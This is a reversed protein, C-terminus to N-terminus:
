ITKQVVRLKASRSRQNIQLEQTSAMIPKKTLVKVREKKEEAKFFHKVIKDELSHFSIVALKGGKELVDIAQPLAIQLNELENNVTIRLAMFTRTAPSIRGREYNMPVAKKIIEVLELTTKIQRVRRRLVINEAIRGAFKEQGFEKFIRELEPKSWYNVIKDATLGKKGALSMILPEDRLFSFGRGSEQLQWSSIGLDMVIGKIKSFNRDAVIKKLNVFNDNVLIIRHGYDSANLTKITAALIEQDQEIGLIKGKPGNKKLIELSHGAEGLTADIFNENEKPGLWDVVEKLLVPAHM